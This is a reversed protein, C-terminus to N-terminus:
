VFDWPPRFCYMKQLDVKYHIVKESMDGCKQSRVEVTQERENMKMNPDLLPRMSQELQHTTIKLINEERNITRRFNNALCENIAKQDALQQLDKYMQQVDNRRVLLVYADPDAIIVSEGLEDILKVLHPNQESDLLVAERTKQYKEKMEDYKKTQCAIHEEKEDLKMSYEVITHYHDLRKEREEMIEKVKDYDCEQIPEHGKIVGYLLSNKIREATDRRGNKVAEDLKRVFFLLTQDIRRTDMHSALKMDLRVAMDLRAALIRIIKKYEELYEQSIKGTPDTLQLTLLADKIKETEQRISTIQEKEELGTMSQSQEKRGNFIEKIKKGFMM